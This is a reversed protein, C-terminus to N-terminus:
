SLIGHSPPVTWLILYVWSVRAFDNPVYVLFLSIAPISDHRLNMLPKTLVKFSFQRLLYEVKNFFICGKSTMHDRPTRSDLTLQAKARVHLQSRLYASHFPFLLNINNPRTQFWQCRFCSLCFSTSDYSSM